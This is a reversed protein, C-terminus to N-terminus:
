KDNINIRVIIKVVSGDVTWTTKQFFINEPVFPWFPMSHSQCIWFSSDCMTRYFSNYCDRYSNQWCIFSWLIHDFCCDPLATM